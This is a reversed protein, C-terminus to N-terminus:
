LAPEPETIPREAELAMELWLSKAIEINALAEERTDGSTGCGPLLPIKAYWGEDETPPILLIPYPVKMYYEIDKNMELLSEPQIDHVRM